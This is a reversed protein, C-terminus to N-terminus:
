AVPVASVDFQFTFRMSNPGTQEADTVQVSYDVKIKIDGAARWADVYKQYPAFDSIPMDPYYEDQDSNLFTIRGAAGDWHVFRIYSPLDSLDVERSVRDVYVRNNTRSILIEV